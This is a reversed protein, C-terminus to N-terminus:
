YFISRAYYGGRKEVIERKTKDNSLDRPLLVSNRLTNASPDTTYHGKIAEMYNTRRYMELAAKSYTIARPIEPV